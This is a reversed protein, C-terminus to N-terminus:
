DIKKTDGDNTSDKKFIVEALKEIYANITKLTTKYRKAVDIKTCETGFMQCVSYEIVACLANTSRFGRDMGMNLILVYMEICEKIIDTDYDKPICEKFVDIVKQPRSLTNGDEITSVSVKVNLIDGAFYAPYPQPIGMFQLNALVDKKIDDSMSISFLAEKLVRESDMNDVVSLISICLRKVGDDKYRLGWMVTLRNEETWNVLLEEKTMNMLGKIRKICDIVGVIPLQNYYDIYKPKMLSSISKLYYYAVYNDEDIKLIDRYASLAKNVNGLNYNAAALFFMYTTDMTYIASSQKVMRIVDQHYKLECYISIIKVFEEHSVPKLKSMKEIQSNLESKKNQRHYFLALNCNAYVDYRNKSVVEKCIKIAKDPQSDYFYAMALNNKIFTQKPAIYGVMTFLRIAKKYRGEEIYSKGKQTIDLLRLERGTVDDEELREIIMEVYEAYDGDPYMDLLRDFYEIGVNYMHMKLFNNGLNYLSIENHDACLALYAYRNSKDIMNIKSYVSALELLVDVNSPDEDLAKKLIAIAHIYESKDVKKYAINLLKDVGVRFEVINNDPKQIM